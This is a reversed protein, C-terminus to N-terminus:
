PAFMLVVPDRASGSLTYTASSLDSSLVLSVNRQIKMYCLYEQLKSFELLLIPKKLTQLVEWCYTKDKVVSCM